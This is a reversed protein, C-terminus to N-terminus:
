LIFLAFKLSIGQDKMSSPNRQASNLVDFNGKNLNFHKPTLSLADESAISAVSSDLSDHQKTEPQKIQIYSNSPKEFTAGRQFTLTRENM